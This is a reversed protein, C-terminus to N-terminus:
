ENAIKEAATATALQVDLLFVKSGIRRTRIGTRLCFEELQTAFEAPPYPRLNRAKCRAAYDAGLDAIEVRKGRGAELAETCIPGVQGYPPQDSTSVLKPRAPVQPKLTPLEPEPRVDIVVGQQKPSPASPIRRTRWHWSQWPRPMPPMKLSMGISLFLAALASISIPILMPQYLRVQEETLRPLLAVARKAGSDPHEAPAKLLAERAKELAKWATDRKAEADTCRRGRGSGCETAAADRADKWAENADKAIQAAVTGDRKDIERQLQVQDAAGGTRQIAAYYVVSMVIPMALWCAIAKGHQRREVLQGAYMPLLAVAVAFGTGAKVIFNIHGGQDALLFDYTGEAECWVFFIGAALALLRLLVATGWSM